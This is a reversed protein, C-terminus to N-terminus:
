RMFRNENPSWGVVFALSLKFNVMLRVIGVIAPRARGISFNASATPFHEMSTLLTLMDWRELRGISWSLRSCIAFANNSVVLRHMLVHTGFLKSPQLVTIQHLARTEVILWSESGLEPTSLLLSVMAM